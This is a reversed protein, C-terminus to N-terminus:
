IYIFVARISKHLVYFDSCTVNNEPAVSLSQYYLFLNADIFALSYRYRIELATCRYLSENPFFFCLHFAHSNFTYFYHLTHFFNSFIKQSRNRRHLINSNLQKLFIRVLTSIFPPFEICFNLHSFYLYTQFNSKQM